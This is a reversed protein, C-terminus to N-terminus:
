WPDERRDKKSLSIEPDSLIWHPLQSCKYRIKETKQSYSQYREQLDDPLPGDQPQAFLEPLPRKLSASPSTYGGVFLGENQSRRDKQRGLYLKLSRAAPSELKMRIILNLFSSLHEHPCQVYQDITCLNEAIKFSDQFKKGFRIKDKTCASEFKRHAEKFRSIADFM